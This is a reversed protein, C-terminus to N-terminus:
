TLAVVVLQLPDIGGVAHQGLLHITEEVDGALRVGPLKGANVWRALRNHLAGLAFEEMQALIAGLLRAPTQREVRGLRIGLIGIHRQGVERFEDVVGTEQITVIGGRAPPLKALALLEIHIPQGVLLVDM